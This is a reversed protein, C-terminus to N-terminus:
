IPLMMPSTNSCYPRLDSPSNICTQCNHSSVTPPAIAAFALGAALALVWVLPSVFQRLFIKLWSEKKGAELTNLGYTKIRKRVESKTLGNQLSTHLLEPLKEVPIQWTKELTSPM